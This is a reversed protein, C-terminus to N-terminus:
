GSMRGMDPPFDDDVIAPMREVTAAQPLMVDFSPLGTGKRMDLGRRADNDGDRRPHQIWHGTDPHLQPWRAHRNRGQDFKM